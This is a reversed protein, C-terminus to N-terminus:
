IQLSTFEGKRKGSKEIMLDLQNILELKESELVVMQNEVVSMEMGMQKTDEILCEFEAKMSDRESSLEIVFDILVNPLRRLRKLSYTNLNQKSDLLSVKDEDDEENSQDMFSFMENFVNEEDQIVVM